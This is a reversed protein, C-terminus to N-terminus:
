YSGCIVIFFFACKNGIVWLFDKNCISYLVPRQIVPRYNWPSTQPMSCLPSSVTSNFVLGRLQLPVPLVHTETYFLPCGATLCHDLAAVDELAQAAKRTLLLHGLAFNSLSLFM